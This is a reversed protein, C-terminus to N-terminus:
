SAPSPLPISVRECMALVEKISFAARLTKNKRNSITVNTLEYVWQHRLLPRQASVCHLVFFAM